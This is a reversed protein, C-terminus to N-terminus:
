VQRMPLVVEEEDASSELSCLTHHENMDWSLTEDDDEEDGDEDDGGEDDSPEALKAHLTTTCDQRASFLEGITLHDGLCDGMWFLSTRAPDWCTPSCIQVKISWIDVSGELELEDLGDNCSFEVRIKFPRAAASM